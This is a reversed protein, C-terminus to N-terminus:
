YLFGGEVSYALTFVVTAGFAAVALLWGLIRGFRTSDRWIFLIGIVLTILNIFRFYVIPLACLFALVRGVNKLIKKPKEDM